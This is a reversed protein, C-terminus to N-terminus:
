KFKFIRQQSPGGTPRTREERGLRNILSKRGRPVWSQTYCWVAGAATKGPRPRFDHGAEGSARGATGVATVPRLLAV